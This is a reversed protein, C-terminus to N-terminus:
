VVRMLLLPCLPPCQTGTTTSRNSSLTQHATSPPIPVSRPPPFQPPNLIATHCLAKLLVINSGISVERGSAAPHMDLSHQNSWAVEASTPQVSPLAAAPAKVGQSSLLFSIFRNSRFMFYFNNPRVHRRMSLPRRRIRRFLHWFNSQPGLSIM